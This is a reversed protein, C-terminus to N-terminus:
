VKQLHRKRQREYIPSWNELFNEKTRWGGPRPGYDAVVIGIVKLKQFRWRGQKNAVLRIRNGKAHNWSFLQGELWDYWKPPPLISIFSLRRM